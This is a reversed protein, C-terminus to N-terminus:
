QHACSTSIPQSRAYKAAYKQEERSEATLVYWAKSAIVTCTRALPFPALVVQDARVVAAVGRLLDCQELSAAVQQLALTLLPSTPSLERISKTRPATM